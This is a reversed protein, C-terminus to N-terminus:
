LWHTQLWTLSSNFLSEAQDQVRATDITPERAAAATNNTTM